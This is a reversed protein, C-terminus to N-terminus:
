EGALASLSASSPEAVPSPALVGSRQLAQGIASLWPENGVGEAGAEVPLLKAPAQGEMAAAHLATGDTGLVICDAARALLGAAALSPQDAARSPGGPGFVALSCREVGLGERVIEPLSARVVVATVLPDAFAVRLRQALSAKAKTLPRGDLSVGEGTALAVQYGGDRLLRGVAELLAGEGAEEILYVVPIRGDDGEPFLGAIFREELAGEPLGMLFGPTSNIEVIGGGGDMWSRAIDPIVFDIGAVELGMVRAARLALDRNDPHVQHSITEPMGGVSLNSQFRLKVKAGAEPVDDLGYGQAKLTRLADDDVVIKRLRATLEDTRTANVQEVLARLTDKGNGTVQAPHQRVAAVFTGYMVLLRHNDGEVFREVLVEGHLSCLQFATRVEEANQLKVHVGIGYDSRNPKVVVPYGLAEAAAVAQNENLVLRNQPGPLGADCLLKASAWKNVSFKVSTFDTGAPFHQLVPRRRAGHGLYLFDEKPLPSAIPIGRKRAAAIVLRFTQSGGHQRDTEPYSAVRSRLWREENEELDGAARKSLGEVLDFALDVLLVSSSRNACEVALYDGRLAPAANVLRYRAVEYGAGRQLKLMARALIDALAPEAGEGLAFTGGPFRIRASDPLARDLFEEVQRLFAAASGPIPIDRVAAASLIILGCDAFINPASLFHAFDSRAM